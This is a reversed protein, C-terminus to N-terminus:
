GVPFDSCPALCAARKPGGRPLRRERFFFVPPEASDLVEGKGPIEFTENRERAGGEFFVRNEPASLQMDAGHARLERLEFRLNESHPPEFGILHTRFVDQM